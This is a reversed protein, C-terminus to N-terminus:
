DRRPRISAIHWTVAGAVVVLIVRIVTSHVFFVASCGISLWLVGIATVKV